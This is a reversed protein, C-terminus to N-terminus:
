ERKERREERKERREERKERAVDRMMMTLKGDASISYELEVPDDISKWLSFLGEDMGTSQVAVQNVNSLFDEIRRDPLM